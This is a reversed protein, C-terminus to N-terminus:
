ASKKPRGPKGRNPFLEHLDQEHAQGQFPDHTLHGSLALADGRGKQQVASELAENIREGRSSLQAIAESVTDQTIAM